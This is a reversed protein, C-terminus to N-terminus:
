RDGDGAGFWSKLPIDEKSAQPEFFGALIPWITYALRAYISNPDSMPWLAHKTTTILQLFTALLNSVTYTINLSPKPGWTM